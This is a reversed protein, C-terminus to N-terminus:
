LLASAANQFESFKLSNRWVPPDLGLVARGCGAVAPKRVGLNSVTTHSRQAVVSILYLFSKRGWSFVRLKKWKVPTFSYLGAPVTVQCLCSRLEGHRSFGTIDRCVLWAGTLPSTPGCPHGRQASRRLSALGGGAAPVSCGKFVDGLM